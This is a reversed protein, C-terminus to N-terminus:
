CTVSVCGHVEVFVGLLGLFGEDGGLLQRITLPMRFDRRLVHQQRQELLALPDDRRDHALHIRVRGGQRGRHPGLETPRRAGM